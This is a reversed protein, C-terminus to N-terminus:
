LGERKKYREYLESSYRVDRSLVRKNGVDATYNRILNLHRLVELPDSEKAAERIAKRRSSEAKDVSYGHRRLFGVKKIPPLTQKGKGRVGKDLVCTSPVTTRSVYAAKVRTGDKRTYARRLHGKKSHKIKSVKGRPCAKGRPRRSRRRTRSRRRSRRRSVGRSRSRRRVM